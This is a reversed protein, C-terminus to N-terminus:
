MKQDAAPMFNSNKDINSMSEKRNLKHGNIALGGNM